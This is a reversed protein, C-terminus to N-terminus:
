YASVAVLAHPFLLLVESNKLYPALVGAFIDRQAQFAVDGVVIPVIPIDDNGTTELVRRVYPLQMEVSHEAEDDAVDWSTFRSSRQKATAKRLESITAIDLKLPGLPTEYERLTEAPLACGDIHARHSPGLVFIRRLPRAESGASGSSPTNEEKEPAPTDSSTGQQRELRERLASFSFAAADGCYSYGAHPSIVARPLPLSYEPSQSSAGGQQDANPRKTSDTLWDDLSSRLREADDDYWSGAHTARRSM